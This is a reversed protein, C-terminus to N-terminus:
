QECTCIDLITKLVILILLRGTIWEPEKIDMLFVRIFIILFQCLDRVLDKKNGAGLCTM